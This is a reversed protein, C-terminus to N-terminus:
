TRGETFKTGVAKGDLIDYLNAPRKGNAIVMDCGCGLCIGAAHLKTVMGGTGQSTGSVGALSLIKEDIGTVTHILTASPDMRPDATYLGDIDSLLILLDAHVARAVKAALTDNDGIVIEDTAM